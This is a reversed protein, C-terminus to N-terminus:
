KRKDNSERIKKYVNIALMLLLTFVILGALGWVMSMANKLVIIFVIGVLLITAVENWIRLQRSRYNYKDNQLQRYIKHCIFHYCYLLFVFTLKIHMFGQELYDPVYTIVWTGFILTLVASPWTIGLWLRKSNRKYENTLITRDPEPKEYAEVQYIFLRVIYFVGAFWTIVFIIHLAKVYLFGM